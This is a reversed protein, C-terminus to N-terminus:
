LDLTDFPSGTQGFSKATIHMDNRTTDSSEYDLLSQVYRIGTGRGSLQITEITILFPRLNPVTFGM